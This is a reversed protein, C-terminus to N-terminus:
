SFGVSVKPWIQRPSFASKSQRVGPIKFCGASGEGGNGLPDTVSNLQALFGYSTRLSNLDRNAPTRSVAPPPSNISTKKSGGGQASHEIPIQGFGNRVTIPATRMTAPAIM